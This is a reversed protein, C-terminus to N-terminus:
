DISLTGIADTTIAKNPPLLFTRKSKALLNEGSLGKLQENKLVVEKKGMKFTLEPNLMPAHKTGRNEVTIQLNKKSHKISVIHLEPKTKGPDVYLAAVYKLLMKIGSGKTKEKKVELPIQEAILRYSKEQSPTQGKWTVRISRKENAPIIIQPPFVIIDNTEPTTESGDIKQQREKVSIMVPMPDKSSNEVFFQAQKEDNDLRIVHSM